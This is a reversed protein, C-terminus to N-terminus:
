SVLVAVTGAEFSAYRQVLQQQSCVLEFAQNLRFGLRFFHHMGSDLVAHCGEHLVPNLFAQLAVGGEFFHFGDRDLLGAPRGGDVAPGRSVAGM